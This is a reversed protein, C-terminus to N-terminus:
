QSEARQAAHESLLSELADFGENIGTVERVGWVDTVVYAATAPHDLAAFMASLLAHARARPSDDPAYTVCVCDGSRHECMVRGAGISLGMHPTSHECNACPLTESEM